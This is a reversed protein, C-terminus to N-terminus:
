APLMNFILLCKAKAIEYENITFLSQAVSKLIEESSYLVRYLTVNMVMGENLSVRM